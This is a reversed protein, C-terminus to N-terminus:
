QREIELPKAPAAPPKPPEPAPPRAASEAVESKRVRITGRDTTLTIAPGQGVSGMLKAARRRNGRRDDGSEGGEVKLPAGFDNEVDGRNTVAQLQFRAGAPAAFEINGSRTRADVKAIPTKTPRYEIDGRDLSVTLSQTVDGLQVDLSKANLRVPGVIGSGSFNRLDMRAEGTLREFEIQLTGNRDCDLRFPRALNRLEVDGFYAATITVPGGIGDLELDQGKGRLEVSGKVAVARVIDSRRTEIRVNGGINQLRVGANDSTIDVNGTIGTIDFDGYRGRAEIHVTKPILVELDVSVRREGSVKEQNTRLLISDGQRILELPSAKDAEEAEARTMARITKRGTVKIENSDSALIRANGRQNDVVLRFTGSPAAIKQEPLPFDFAEGFVEIGRLFAPKKERWDHRSFFFLGSGIICLFIVLTWEGGSMRYDPTLKGRAFWVLIEILRLGGWAILLYPWFRALVDFFRFDPRLNNILFLAGIVVLLLPGIVSRPKM